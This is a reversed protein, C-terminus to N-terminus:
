PTGTAPAPVVELEQVPFRETHFHDDPSFWVCTAMPIVGSIPADFSRVVMVPGGAFWKVFEGARQPRTTNAM